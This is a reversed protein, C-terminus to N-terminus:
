LIHVSRTREDRSPGLPVSCREGEVEGHFPPQTARPSIRPPTQSLQLRGDARSGDAPVIDAPRSTRSRQDQFRMTSVRGATKKAPRGSLGSRPYTTSASECFAEDSRRM